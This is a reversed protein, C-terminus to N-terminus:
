AIRPSILRIVTLNVVFPALYSNARGLSASGTYNTNGSQVAVAVGNLVDGCVFVNGNPGVTVARPTLTGGGGAPDM